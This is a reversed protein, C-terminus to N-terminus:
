YYLLPQAAILWGDLSGTISQFGVEKEKKKKEKKTVQSV